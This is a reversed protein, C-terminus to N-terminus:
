KGVERPATREGSAAALLEGAGALLSGLAGATWAVPYARESYWLRAFYLGIPSPKEMDGAMVARALYEAGSSAARVAREDGAGAAGARRLGSRRAFAALAEVAVATEEVTPAVGGAAGWGGSRDQTGLLFEV